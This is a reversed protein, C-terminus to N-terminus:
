IKSIKEKLFDITDKKTTIHNKDLINKYDIEKIDSFSFVIDIMFKNNGLMSFLLINKWNFKYKPGAKKLFYKVLDNHCKKAASIIWSNWNHKKFEGKKLFYKVLDIDGIRSAISVLQCWNFEGGKSLFFDILDRHRGRTAGEAGYSWSFPSNEANEILFFILDKRGIKAATSVAINYDIKHEYKKSKSIFFKMLDLNGGKTAGYVGKSFNLHLKYNSIYFDILEKNNKRALDYLNNNWFIRKNNKLFIPLFYKVLENHNNEIAGSILSYDYGIGKSLYFNILEKDGSKGAGYFWFKTYKTDLNTKLIFFNIFDINQMGKQSLNIISFYPNYNSFYVLSLYIEKWTRSLNTKKFKLFNFLTRNMWFFENKCIDNFYKNTLSFNFIDVDNLEFVIKLILDKLM